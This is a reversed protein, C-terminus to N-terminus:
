VDCLGLELEIGRGAPLRRPPVGGRRVAGVVLEAVNRGLSESLVAYTTTLRPNVELVRPGDPTLVLDVGVHGQLGPIAEAVARGLEEFLDREQALGNVRWGLIEFGDDALVVQQDNCGLVTAEGDCVLLSISAARGPTFSQVVWDHADGNISALRAELTATDRFLRTHQCGAGEEPKLVWRGDAMPPLADATWTAVVPLGYRDLRAVTASKSATLRVAEPTSNLLIRGADQVSASLGALVGGTEPAVPWVYEAERLCREWCGALDGPGKVLYTRAPLGADGLRADRSTIVEVGPIRALDNVLARLMLDGEEVMGAIMPQGAMGGGTVYEFAFIRM